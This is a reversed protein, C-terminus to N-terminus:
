HGCGCGNNKNNESRINDCITNCGQLQEIVYQANYYEGYELHYNIVNVTMWLIDRKLTDQQNLNNCKGCNKLFENLLNRAVTEYCRKLNDMTFVDYTSISITTVEPNIQVLEYPDTITSVGNISKYIVQGDTYYIGPNNTILEHNKYMQFWEVTPLVIRSIKYYGDKPLKIVHSDSTDDHMHYCANIFEEGQSSIYVTIDITCTESYKFYDLNPEYVEISEDIYEQLEPTIDIISVSNDFDPKIEIALNM